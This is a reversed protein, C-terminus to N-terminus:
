CKKEIDKHNMEVPPLHGHNVATKDEQKMRSFYKQYFDKKVSEDLKSKRAYDENGNQVVDDLKSRSTRELSRALKDETEIEMRKLAAFYNDSDFKAGHRPKVQGRSFSGECTFPSAWALPGM